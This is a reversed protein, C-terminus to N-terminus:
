EVQIIEDKSTTSGTHSGLGMDATTSTNSGVSRFRRRTPAEDSILHTITTGEPFSWPVLGELQEFKHLVRLASKIRKECEESHCEVIEKFIANPLQVLYENLMDVFLQELYGYLDEISGHVQRRIIFETVIALEDQIYDAPLEEKLGRIIAIAQILQSQSESTEVKSKKLIKPLLHGNFKNSKLLAEALMSKKKNEFTSPSMKRQVFQIIEFVESLSSLLLSGSLSSPISIDTIRAVLVLSLTSMEYGPKESDYFNRLLHALSEQPVSPRTKSLLEKLQYLTNPKNGAIWRKMDKVGQRLAWKDLGTKENEILDTFKQMDEDGMTEEEIAVCALCLVVVFPFMIMVTMLRIVYEMVISAVKTCSDRIGSQLIPSCFIVYDADIVREQYARFDRSPLLNFWTIFRLSTGLGAVIATIIQSVVIAKMSYKYDSVGDGCSKLDKSFLSRGATQILVVSCLFCIMGVCVNIVTKYIVHFQPDSNYARLYCMQLRYFMSKRGSTLHGKIGDASAEKENHVYLTCFWLTILLVIMSCMILIHEARFLIIVGTHMQICINVVATIVLISLAVVNTFCESYSYMGLSPMFFGMSNCMLANGSLKSLQDQVGPMSTTLDVPLKVAISLLTLTISNLPFLRCPLWRKRNHFGSFIDVLVFLLCVLTAATIYLGILPMPSSYNSDDLKGDACNKGFGEM